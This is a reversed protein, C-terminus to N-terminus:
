FQFNRQLFNLEMIQSHIISLVSPLFFESYIKIFFSAIVTDKFISRNKFLNTNITVNLRQSMNFM